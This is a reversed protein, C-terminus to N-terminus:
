RYSISRTVSIVQEKLSECILVTTTRTAGLAQRSGELTKCEGEDLKLKLHLHDIYWNRVQLPGDATRYVTAQHVFLPRITTRSYTPILVAGPYQVTNRENFFFVLAFLALAFLGAMVALGCGIFYIRHDKRRQIPTM